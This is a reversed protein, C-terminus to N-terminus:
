KYDNPNPMWGIVGGSGDSGPLPCGSTNSMYADTGPITCVRMPVNYRDTRVRSLYGMPIEIGVRHPYPHGAKGCDAQNSVFHHRSNYICRYVRRSNEFPNRSMAFDRVAANSVSQHNWATEAAWNLSLMYDTHSSSYKQEIYFWGPDSDCSELLVTLSGDSECRVDVEGEYGNRTNSVTGVRGPTLEALTGGCNGSGWTYNTDGSCNVSQASCSSSGTSLNGQSDCTFRISGNFGSASNNVVRNSNINLTGGLSASCGSGWSPSSPLNCETPGGGSSTTAPNRIMAMQNVCIAEGTNPDVGQFFGNSCQWKSNWDVVCRGGTITGDLDDCVAQDLADRLGNILNTNMNTVCNTYDAAPAAENATFGPVENTKRMYFEACFRERASAAALQFDAKCRIDNAGYRTGYVKIFRNKIQNTALDTFALTITAVFNEGSGPLGTFARPNNQDQAAIAASDFNFAIGMNLRVNQRLSVRGNAGDVSNAEFGYQENDKLFHKVAGGGAAPKGIWNLTGGGIGNFSSLTASCSEEKALLIGALNTLRNIQDYKRQKSKNQGLQSSLGTLTLSIIGTLGVVIALEVISYGKNNNFFKTVKQNEKM